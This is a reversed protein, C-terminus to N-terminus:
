VPVKIEAPPLPMAPAVPKFNLCNGVMMLFRTLDRRGFDGYKTLPEMLKLPQRTRTMVGPSTTHYIFVVSPDEIRMICANATGTFEDVERAIEYYNAIGNAAVSTSTFKAKLTIVINQFDSPDFHQVDFHLIDTVTQLMLKKAEQENM